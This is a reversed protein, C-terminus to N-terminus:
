FFIWGQALFFDFFANNAQGPICSACICHLKCFQVAHVDNHSRIAIVRCGHKNHCIFTPLYEGLGFTPGFRDLVFNFYAKISESTSWDIRDAPHLILDIYGRSSAADAFPIFM